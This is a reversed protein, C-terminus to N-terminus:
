KKRSSGHTTQVREGEHYGNAAIKHADSNRSRAVPRYVVAPINALLSVARKAYQGLEKTNPSVSSAPNISNLVADCDGIVRLSEVSYNMLLDSLGHLLAEYEAQVSGFFSDIRIRKKQLWKGDQTRAGYGLFTVESDKHASGDFYLTVPERVTRATTNASM